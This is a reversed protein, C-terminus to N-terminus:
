LLWREARIDSWWLHWRIIVSNLTAEGLEERDWWQTNNEEWCRAMDSVIENKVQTNDTEGWRRGVALIYVGHLVKGTTSLKTDGAALAPNSWVLYLIFIQHIFSHTHRFVSPLQDLMPWRGCPFGIALLTKKKEKPCQSYWLSRKEWQRLEIGLRVSLNRDKRQTLFSSCVM